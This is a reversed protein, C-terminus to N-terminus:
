EGPRKTIQLTVVLTRVCHSHSFLKAIATSMPALTLDNSHVEIIIITFILLTITGTAILIISM